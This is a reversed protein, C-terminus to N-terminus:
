FREGTMDCQTFRFRAGMYCRLGNDHMSLLAGMQQVWAVRVDSM